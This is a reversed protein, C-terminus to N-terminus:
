SSLPSMVLLYSVSVALLCPGSLGPLRTSAGRLSPDWAEGGRVSQRTGLSPVGRTSLGRATEMRGLSVM